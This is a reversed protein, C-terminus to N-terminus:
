SKSRAPFNSPMGLWTRTWRCNQSVRWWRTRRHRRRRRRKQYWFGHMSIGATECSHCPQVHYGRTQAPRLGQRQPKRHLCCCGHYDGGARAEGRTCQKAYSGRPTAVPHQAKCWSRTRVQLRVRIGRASPRGHSPHPKLLVDKQDHGKLTCCTRPGSLAPKTPPSPFDLPGHAPNSM